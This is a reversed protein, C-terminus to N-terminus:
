NESWLLSINISLAELEVVGASWRLAIERDNTRPSWVINREALTLFFEKSAASEIFM